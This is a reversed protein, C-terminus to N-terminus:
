DTPFKLDMNVEYINKFFVYLGPLKFNCYILALFFNMIFAFIYQFIHELLTCAKKYKKIKQNLM